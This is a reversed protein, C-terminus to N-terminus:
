IRRGHTIFALSNLRFEDVIFDVIARIRPSNKSDAHLQLWYEREIILDPLVPILRDDTNAIFYPLVCIGNGALVSNRQGVITSSKFKATLGPLFDDLYKLSKEFLLDDIYGIINHEFLDEKNELKKHTEMYAWTSFLGQRYNTLKRVLINGSTPRNITISIDVERNSTSLQMPIAVLEIEIQPHMELFNPLRQTLFYSGIGDPAGVRIVGSIVNDRGTAAEELGLALSEIKEAQHLLEQAALTPRCGKETREFLKTKLLHELSSIRRSVTSHTVGLENAAALLTKCRYLTLFFRIDNWNKM